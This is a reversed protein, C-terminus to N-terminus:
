RAWPKWHSLATGTRSLGSCNGPTSHSMDRNWLAPDLGGEKISVCVLLFPSSSSRVWLGVRSLGGARGAASMDKWRMVKRSGHHSQRANLEQSLKREGGLSACHSVLSGLVAPQKGWRARKFKVAHGPVAPMCQPM